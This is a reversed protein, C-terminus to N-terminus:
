INPIVFGFSYKNKDEEKVFVKGKHLEIIQKVFYLGIGSNTTSEFKNFVSDLNNIKKSFNKIIFVFDNNLRQSIIEIDSNEYSYKIANSFLNELVRKIQFKDAFIINKDSFYKFKQNKSKAVIENTYILHKILEDIDFKEKKLSLSNLRYNNMASCVLNYLYECSEKIQEIIETQEQNLKGFYNQLLLDLAKEQAIIPNKLDHILTATNDSIIM